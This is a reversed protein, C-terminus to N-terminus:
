KQCYLLFNKWETNERMQLRTRNGCVPCHIWEIKM